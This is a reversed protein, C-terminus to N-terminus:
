GAFAAAPLGPSDIEVSFLAGAQPEAKLTADDLGSRASTIFLTRMDAGGFACNTIHRTPLMVRALEAADAPNHCTVCSAGWHAIWLRGAADTTMGDPYGDQPEFQLWLRKNGLTGSAPDFDFAYM